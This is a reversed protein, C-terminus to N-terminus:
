CVRIRTGAPGSYHRRGRLREGCPYNPLGPREWVGVHEQECAGFRDEHVASEDAVGFLGGGPHACTPSRVSTTFV